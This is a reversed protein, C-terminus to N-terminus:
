EAVSPPFLRARLEPAYRELIDASIGGARCVESYLEGSRKVMRQGTKLDLNVLGFRAGFGEAWEFNDVLSWFYFGKLPVGEQLALHAAGLHSLLFRPRLSDDNDPVGAETIYIPKGYSELRKLWRYLGEPYIEGWGEMSFDAGPMAFRRTFLLGPQSIDFSVMDRSYYNLGILDQADAGGDLATGLALPFPLTGSAPPELVLGNFLHDLLQAAWRDLPSHPRFPDFVRLHQALGVRAHPQRDHIARYALQHATMQNRLVRLTTPLNHRQPPWSGLLYSNVAYVNPENITCWLSVLDGFVDAAQAAFREFYRVAAANEWGGQKALWLPSSFHFLTVMPEIGRDRLARLMERYRAIARSDWTGETPEIRSWEVSLRLTNQHLAQALDFDEEYRGSWWECGRSSNTGDKVNGPTKEWESWDNTLQGEVQHAATATGWAFDSPFRLMDVPM